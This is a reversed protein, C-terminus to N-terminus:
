VEYVIKVGVNENCCEALWPTFTMHYPQDALDIRSKNYKLDQQNENGALELCQGLTPNINHWRRLRHGLM